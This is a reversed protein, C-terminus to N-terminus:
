RRAVPTYPDVVVGLAALTEVAKRTAPTDAAACTVPEPRALELLGKIAEPDLRGLHDLLAEASEYHERVHIADREDNAWFSYEVVGDHDRCDRALKACFGVVAEFDDPDFVMRGSLSIEDM